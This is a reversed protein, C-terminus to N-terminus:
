ASVSSPRKEAMGRFFPGFRLLVPDLRRTRALRNYLAAAARRWRPFRELDQAPVEPVLLRLDFAGTSRVLRAVERASRPTTHGYPEHIRWRVYPDQLPRPLWGVGWVGVHAEAGLSYRNPTAFAAWGDATTIRATEALVAGPDEVHELVDLLVVGPVSGSPLPLREGLAAALVPVGGAERILRKAVLLWQLSADVGIGQVGRTAAAALLAGSGCGVDLFGPRCPALWTDLEAELRARLALTSRTRSQIRQEDWGQRAAFIRRILEAASVELDDALLETAAARDRELDVWTTSRWRFDPIDGDFVLYRRECPDCRLEEAASADLPDRCGPCCWPTSGWGVTPGHSTPEPGSM